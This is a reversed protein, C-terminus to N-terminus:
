RSYYEVVLNPEMTVPYPVDSLKPCRTFSCKMGKDEIAIYDPVDRESSGVSELVVPINRSQDKVAIVDGEKVSYSSINVKKDNVKIHGHNVLQRAAFITPAVKMRYVVADLRKELLGILNEATDGKLRVAEEYLKSFQKETIEGYYGKLTQKARLQLGYDSVKKRKQGHMGPGYSRVNTPSKAQGWLNVGLRRSIKHKSNVRRSM